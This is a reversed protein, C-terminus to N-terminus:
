PAPMMSKLSSLSNLICNTAETAVTKKKKKTLKVRKKALPSKMVATNDELQLLSYALTDTLTLKQFYVFLKIQCICVEEYLM